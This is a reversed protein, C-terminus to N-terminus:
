PPFLRSLLTASNTWNNSDLDLLLVDAHQSTLRATLDEGSTVLGISFDEGSTATLLPAPKQDQSHLLLLM